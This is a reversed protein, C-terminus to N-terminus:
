DRRYEILKRIWVQLIIFLARLHETTRLQEEQTGGERVVFNTVHFMLIRSNYTATEDRHFLKRQDELVLFEQSTSFVSRIRLSKCKARQYIFIQCQLNKHILTLIFSCIYRYYMSDTILYHYKFPYTTPLCLLM